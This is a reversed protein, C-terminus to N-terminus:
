SIGGPKAASDRDLAAVPKEVNNALAAVPNEVDEIMCLALRRYHEAMASDPFAEVVTQGLKEAAQVQPDRPLRYIV